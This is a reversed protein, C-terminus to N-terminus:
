LHLILPCFKFIKYNRQKKGRGDKETMLLFGQGGRIFAKIKTLQCEDRTRVRDHDHSFLCSCVHFGKKKKPRETETGTERERNINDHHTHVEKEKRDRSPVFVTKWCLSHTRRIM